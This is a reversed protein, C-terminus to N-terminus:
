FSFNYSKSFNVKTKDRNTIGTKIQFGEQESKCDRGRNSIEKSRDSIVKGRNLVGAGIQLRNAGVQFEQLQGM